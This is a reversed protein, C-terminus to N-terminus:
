DGTRTDRVSMAAQAAADQSSRDGAFDDTRGADAPPAPAAADTGGVAPPQQAAVPKGDDGAADNDGGTGDDDGVEGGTAAPRCRRERERRAEAAEGVPRRDQRFGFSPTRVITSRVKKDAAVVQNRSHASFFRRGFPDVNTVPNAGAYSYAPALAPEDLLPQGDDVLIPDPSYFFERDQDYWRAGISIIGRVEDVYGGAYQYPGRFVTNHEDIWVEGTAFYEHHQFTDGRYDTIINMSGQLDKHLFYRKVEENGGDARQTAIRDDSAWIHKFIENTNRVTVWPNVFATEGAPGREITRQGAGDYTYDTTSPGDSVTRM